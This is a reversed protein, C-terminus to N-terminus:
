NLELIERAKALQNKVIYDPTIGVEDICIGNPTLWLASTYKVMGGNNLQMIQQVKGKGFTQEGVIKAGNVDKLAATLIESASATNKNVLVVINYDRKESTNDKESKIKEKENLSYITSGKPLFISAINKAIDLFGGTNDRLDLILSEMGNSELDNLAMRLQEELTKSFTSISIYGIKSNPLFNYETCPLNINENKLTFSLTEGNRKIILNFNDKFNKIKTVIQQGTLNSVDEDNIGIIVDNEKIGVKSAPTNKYVKIITKTENNISIGIGEYKGSLDSLLEDTVEDNLYTTYDDNLSNMMASIAKQLLEKKDVTEYYESTINAYVELFQNLNEDSALSSYTVKPTIKNNNYIIVGTTLASVISAVIVIVIVNILSFSSQSNKKNSNTNNLM